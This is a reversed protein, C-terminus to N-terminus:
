EHFSGAYLAVSAKVGVFLIALLLGSGSVLAHRDVALLAVLLAILWVALHASALTVGHKLRGRVAPEQTDTSEALKQQTSEM